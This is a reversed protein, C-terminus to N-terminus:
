LDFRREIRRFFRAKVAKRFYTCLVYSIKDYRFYSYINLFACVSVVCCSSHFQLSFTKCRTATVMNPLV